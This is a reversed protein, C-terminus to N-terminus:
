FTCGTESLNSASALAARTASRRSRIALTRASCGVRRGHVLPRVGRGSRLDDSEDSQAQQTKRHRQPQARLTELQNAPVPFRVAQLRQRVGASRDCGTGAFDGFAGVDQAQADEIASSNAVHEQSRVPQRFRGGVASGNQVERRDIRFLGDRDGPVGRIESERPDVCGHRASLRPRLVAAKGDHAAPFLSYKRADLRHHRGIRGRHRQDPGRTRPLQRLHHVLDTDGTHHLPQGQLNQWIHAYVNLQQEYSGPHQRVHEPDHTKIDYLWTEDGEQVVDVVGEITFRRGQATRQEPLALRVETRTVNDAVHKMKRYYFLVQNLAEQKLDNTLVQGSEMRLLEYNREFFDRIRAETADGQPQKKKASM